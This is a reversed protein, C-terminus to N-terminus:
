QRFFTIAVLGIGVIAAAWLIISVFVIPSMRTANVTTAQHSRGAVIDLAVQENKQRSM